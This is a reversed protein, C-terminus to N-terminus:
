EYMDHGQVTIFLQARKQRSKYDKVKRLNDSRNAILFTMMAIIQFTGQQIVLKLKFNQIKKM